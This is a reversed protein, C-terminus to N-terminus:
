RSAGVLLEFSLCGSVFPLGSKKFFVRESKEEYLDLAPVEIVQFHKFDGFMLKERLLSFPAELLESAGEKGVEDCYLIHVPLRCSFNSLGWTSDVKEAGFLIMAFPAQFGYGGIEHFERLFVKWKFGEEAFHRFIFSVKPWIEGVMKVLEEHAKSSLLAM